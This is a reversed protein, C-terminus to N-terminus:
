KEVVEERERVREVGREMEGGSPDMSLCPVLFFIDQLM